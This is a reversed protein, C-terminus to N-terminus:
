RPSSRDLASVRVRETENFLRERMHILEAQQTEASL